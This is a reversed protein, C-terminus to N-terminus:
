ARSRLKDVYFVNRHPGGSACQRLVIEGGAKKFINEADEIIREEPVNEISSFTQDEPNNNTSAVENIGYNDLHNDKCDSSNLDKYSVFEFESETKSNVVISERFDFQEEDVGLSILLNITDNEAQEIAQRIQTDSPLDHSPMNQSKLQQKQLCPFNLETKRRHIILLKMQLKQIRQEVDKMTFNVATHNITTMSRLERFATECPQSSLHTTIFQGSNEAQRCRVVFKILGHANLELCHYVNSTPCQKLTKQNKLCIQRWARVFLLATWIATIREAPSMHPDNFASYAKRMILLYTATGVSGPVITTLHDILDLSMLKVSPDFKMRDASNLDSPNLKHIIKDGTEMMQKLVAPSIVYDGLRMHKKPDLLTHRLKNVLHISDQICVPEDDMDMVFHPGYSKSKQSKPMRTRQRMAMLLRPDGDSATSVVTIGVKKLESEVHTWRSLVQAHTFRNDSCMYFICYPSAGVVMPTALVIYLYEGVAFHDLDNIIKGISSAKFIDQKPMGFQDLPAVLGRIADSRSDYEPNPSITTGDESLAVVLPYNHANLYKLLPVVMLVGERTDTTHKAIHRKLTKSSPLVMNARRFQYNSNGATMLEYAAADLESETYRM